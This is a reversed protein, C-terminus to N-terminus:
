VRSALLGQSVRSKNAHTDWGGTSACKEDIKKDEMWFVTVFPVGAEVLRRAALLSMGNVTGGYRKRISLPERSVDLARLTQNGTLLSFAREQQTTWNSHRGVNESQRGVEEVM